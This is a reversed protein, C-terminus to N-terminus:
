NVKILPQQLGVQPRNEPIYFGTGDVHKGGMFLMNPTDERVYLFDHDIVFDSGEVFKLLVCPQGLIDRDVGLEFPGAGCAGAPLQNLQDVMPAALVTLNLKENLVYDQSWAGNAAPNPGHWVIDGAFDYTIAPIACAPDAYVTISAAFGGTEDYTFDRTLYTTTPVANPNAANTQPRIECSISTWQGVIRNQLGALSTDEAFSPSALLALASLISLRM